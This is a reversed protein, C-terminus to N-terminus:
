SFHITKIELNVWKTYLQSIINRKLQWVNLRKKLSISSKDTSFVFHILQLLKWANTNKACHLNQEINSWYIGQSFWRWEKTAAKRPRSNLTTCFFFGEFYNLFHRLFKNKIKYTEYRENQARLKFKSKLVILTSLNEVSLIVNKETHYIFFLDYVQINESFIM